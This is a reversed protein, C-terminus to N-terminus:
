ASSCDEIIGLMDHKTSERPTVRIHLDCLSKTMEAADIAAAAAAQCKPMIYPQLYAKVGLAWDVTTIYKESSCFTENANHYITYTVYM